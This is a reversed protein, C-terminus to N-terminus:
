QAQRARVQGGGSVPRDPARVRVAVGFDVALRDIQGADVGRESAGGAGARQAGGDLVQGPEEIHQELAPQEAV